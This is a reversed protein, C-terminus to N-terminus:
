TASEDVRARFWLEIERGADVRRARARLFDLSMLRGRALVLDAGALADSIAAALAKAAAFGAGESVVTVAIDHVAAAGTKDGADRAREPGLAVYLPPVPGPPLADYVAGGSLAAVAADGALAGYVAAQLAATSGYSM